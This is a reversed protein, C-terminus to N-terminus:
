INPFIKCIKSNNTEVKIGNLDSVFKFEKVTISTQKIVFESQRTKGNKWRYRLESFVPNWRPEEGVGQLRFVRELHCEPAILSSVEKTERLESIVTGWQKIDRVM